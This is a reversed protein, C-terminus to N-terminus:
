KKPVDCEPMLEDSMVALVHEFTALEEPTVREHIRAMVTDIYSQM